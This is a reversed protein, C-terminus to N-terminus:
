PAAPATHIKAGKPPAGARYTHTEYDVESFHGIGWVRDHKNGPDWQAVKNWLLQFEKEEEETRGAKGKSKLVNMRDVDPSKNTSANQRLHRPKPSINVPKSENGGVTVLDGTAPDYSKVMTIHDAREGRVHDVLVINGPRIDVGGLDVQGDKDPQPIEKMERLSGRKRHYAEVPWWEDGVLVHHSKFEYRFLSVYSETGQTFGALAAPVGATRQMMFSFAGCWEDDAGLGGAQIAREKASAGPTKAEQAEFEGVASGVAELQLVERLGSRIDKDDHEFSAPDKAGRLFQVWPRTDGLIQAETRAAKQGARLLGIAREIAAERIAKLMDGRQADDGIPIRVPPLDMHDQGGELMGRATVLPGPGAFEAAARAVLKIDRVSPAAATAQAPPPAQTATPERLLQAVARNGATAQLSIVQAATAPRAPAPVAPGVAAARERPAERGPREERRVERM